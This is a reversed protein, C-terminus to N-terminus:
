NTQIYKVTDEGSEFAQVMLRYSDYAYPMMHTAIKGRINKNSDKEFNENCLM